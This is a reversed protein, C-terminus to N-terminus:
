CVFPSLKIYWFFYLYWKEAFWRFSALHFIPLLLSLLPLSYYCAQFDEKLHRRQRRTELIVKEWVCSTYTYCLFGLPCLNKKLFSVCELKKIIHPKLISHMLSSAPHILQKQFSNQKEHYLILFTYLHKYTLLLPSREPIFYLPGM